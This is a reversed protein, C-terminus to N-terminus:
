QTLCPFPRRDKQLLQRKLSAFYSKGVFGDRFQLGQIWIIRYYLEIVMMHQLVNHLIYFHAVASTTVLEQNTLLHM